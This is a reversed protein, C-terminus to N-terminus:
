DEQIQIINEKAIHLAAEPNVSACLGVAFLLYKEDLYYEANEPLLIEREKKSRLAQQMVAMPHLSNIIPGGTGIITDAKTLNKGIQIEKAGKAYANEIYGGHRRASIRVALKALEFDLEREWGDVPVFQENEMRFRCEQLIHERDTKLRVALADVDAAKLLSLASSRLGLDGEVTRKCDPEPAGVIKADSGENKLFSYVDTTAGGIDFILAKGFGKTNKTGEAILKGGELVAAPTPMVVEGILHKVKDLGKMGTIRKMFINRIVEGAPIANLVGLKPFVNETVYCEKNNKIFVARVKKAIEQNGAYVVPAYLKASEALKRANELIWDANGGEVGGCMLLIEPAIKEIEKVQNEKLRFSYSAIVRAGAGLAVNNGALLSYKPTLGVVVMRLGGAASSSAIIQADRVNKEGIVDGAAKLNALLATGADTKVTSPHRITLPVEGNDLDFVCMKTYTSGFDTLITYSM